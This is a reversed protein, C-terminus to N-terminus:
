GEEEPLTTGLAPSKGESPVKIPKNSYIFLLRTLSHTGLVRYLVSGINMCERLNCM